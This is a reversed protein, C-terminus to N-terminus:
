ESIGFEWDMGGWGGGRQCGCPNSDEINTHSNRNRPYTWTHWIKSDVHWHYWITNTKRKRSECLIILGLDMWTAALPMMENKQIALYYEMTHIYWMKKIWGDMVPCKFQMWTKPIMFPTAIFTFTCIDKWIITKEQIYAWSHSQHIM